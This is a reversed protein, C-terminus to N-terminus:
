HFLNCTRPQKAAGGAASGAHEDAFRVRKHSREGTEGAAQDAIFMQYEAHEMLVRIQQNQERVVNAVHQTRTIEQTKLLQLHAKEAKDQQVNLAAMRREHRADESVIWANFEDRKVENNRAYLTHEETKLETVDTKAKISANEEEKASTEFKRKNDQAKRKRQMTQLTRDDCGRDFVTLMSPVPVDPAQEDTTSFSGRVTALVANAKATGATVVNQLIQFTDAVNLDPLSPLGLSAITPLSPLGLSAITPLTPFTFGSM